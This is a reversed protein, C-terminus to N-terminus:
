RVSVSSAHSRVVKWFLSRSFVRSQEQEVMKLGPNHSVVNFKKPLDCAEGDDEEEEM